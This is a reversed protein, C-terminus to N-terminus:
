ANQFTNLANKVLKIEQEPTRGRKKLKPLSGHVHTGFPADKWIYEEWGLAAIDFYGRKAFGFDSYYQKDKPLYCLQEPLLLEYLTNLGMVLEKKIQPRNLVGIVCESRIDPRSGIYTYIGYGTDRATGIYTRRRKISLTSKCRALFSRANILFNRKGADSASMHPFMEKLTHKAGTIKGQEDMSYMPSFDLASLPIKECDIVMGVVCPVYRYKQWDQVYYPVGFVALNNKQMHVIVDRIWNPRIIFYDSDLSLVYRTTVEKLCRNIASAHHHSGLNHFDEIPANRVTIFKDPDLKQYFDNPTNDGAYWVFSTEPNLNKTLAYNAELLQKALTNHYVSIISLQPNNISKEM